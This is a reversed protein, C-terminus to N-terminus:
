LRACLEAVLARLWRQAPDDHLATPAFRSRARQAPPHM